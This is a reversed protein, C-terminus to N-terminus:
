PGLLRRVTDGLGERWHISLLYSTKSYSTKSDYLLSAEMAGKYYERERLGEDKGWDKLVRLREFRWGLAAMEKNYHEVLEDSSLKTRYDSSVNITLLFGLNPHWDADGVFTTRPPRPIQHLEELLREHQREAYDANALRSGIGFMIFVCVAIAYGIIHKIHM